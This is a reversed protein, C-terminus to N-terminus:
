RAALAARIREAHRPYYASLAAIVVARVEADPPWDPALYANLWLGDTLANIGTAVPESDEGPRALAACIASLAEAWANDYEAAIEGYVPRASAQGWYAHWVALAQENYVHEDFGAEMLAVLQDLPDEGAEELRAKWARQYAEYHSRFAEALLRQKNEFYFVAVGQSLGAEQSVTALTTEALGHRAVSRLTAEIM